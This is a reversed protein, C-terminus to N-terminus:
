STFPEAYGNVKERRGQAYGGRDHFLRGASPTFESLQEMVKLGIM